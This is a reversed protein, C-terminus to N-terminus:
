RSTEVGSVHLVAIEPQPASPDRACSEAAMVKLHTIVEEFESYVGSSEVEWGLPRANQHVGPMKGLLSKFDRRDSLNPPNAVAV